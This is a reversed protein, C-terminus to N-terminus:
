SLKDLLTKGVVPAGIQCYDKAHGSCDCHQRSSQQNTIRYPGAQAIQNHLSQTVGILYYRRLSEKTFLESGVNLILSLERGASECCRARQNRELAGDSLLRALAYAGTYPHVSDITSEPFKM